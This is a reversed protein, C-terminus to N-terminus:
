LGSLRRWDEITMNRIAEIGVRGSADVWTGEWDHPALIAMLKERNFKNLECDPCLNHSRNNTYHMGCQCCLYGKKRTIGRKSNCRTPM